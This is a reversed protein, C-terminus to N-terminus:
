RHVCWSTDIQALWRSALSPTIHSMEGALRPLLGGNGVEWEFLRTALYARVGPPLTMLTDPDGPDFRAVLRSWVRDDLQTDDLSAIDQETLLSPDRRRARRALLEAKLRQVDVPADDGM